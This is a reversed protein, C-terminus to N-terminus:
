ARLGRRKKIYGVTEITRREMNLGTDPKAAKCMGGITKRTMLKTAVQSIM